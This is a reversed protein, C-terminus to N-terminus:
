LCETMDPELEPEDVDDGDIAPSEANGLLLRNRQDTEVAEVANVAGSESSESLADRQPELADDEHSGNIRAEDAQEPTVERAITM